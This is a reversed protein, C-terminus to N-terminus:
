KNGKTEEINYFQETTYVMHWESFHYHELSIYVIGLLEDNIARLRYNPTPAMVYLTVEIHENGGQGKTARESTVSAYLKM